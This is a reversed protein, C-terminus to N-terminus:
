REEKRRIEMWEEYNEALQIHCMAMEMSLKVKKLHGLKRFREVEMMWFEAKERQDVSNIRAVGVNM